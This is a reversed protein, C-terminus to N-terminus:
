GEERSGRGGKEACDNLVTLVAQWNVAILAMDVREPIDRVRLYCPLSLIEGEMPNVPYVRGPYGSDLINKVIVHGIKTPISSAGIVAVSNPTFYDKELM